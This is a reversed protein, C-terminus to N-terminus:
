HHDNTYSLLSLEIITTMSDGIDTEPQTINVVVYYELANIIPPKTSEDTTTISLQTIVYPKIKRTYYTQTSLYELTIDDVLIDGNWLIRFNRTDNSSKLDEIEAFHMACYFRATPYQLQFATYTTLNLDISSSVNKPSIATKM